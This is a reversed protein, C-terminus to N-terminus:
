SRGTWGDWSIFAMNGIESDIPMDSETFLTELQEITRSVVEGANEWVKLSNDALRNGKILTTFLMKGDQTVINKLCAM